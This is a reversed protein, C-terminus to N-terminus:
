PGCLFASEPDVGKDGGLVRASSPGPSYLCIRSKEPAEQLLFPQQRVIQVSLCVSQLCGPRGEAPPHTFLSTCGSLPRHSLLLFFHAIVGHFSM